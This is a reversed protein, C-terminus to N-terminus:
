NNNKNEELISNIKYVFVGRFLKVPKIIFEAIDWLANEIDLIFFMISYLRKLRGQNKNSQNEM